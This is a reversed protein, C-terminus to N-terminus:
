QKQRHYRVWGFLLIGLIGVAGLLAQNSVMGVTEDPNGVFVLHAWYQPSHFQAYRGDRLFDIRAKQLAQAFSDGQQLHAYFKASIYATAKDEANWLSTVTNACGAYALARSLSMVGEGNIVKGSATECASLFVLRTKSLPENRLEHAYLKYDANGVPSFVIFSRSPDENNVVAHTALHIISAEPSLKIFSAKTAAQNILKVGTMTEIEGYSAPLQTYAVKKATSVSSFPAVALTKTFDIPDRANDHRLFPVAYQYVVDYKELLYANDRDEFAEFPLLRLADCPIILLSSIGTLGAEAPKILRDYLLRAHPSGGYAAGPLITQLARRLGSLAQRYASDKPAQYFRLENHTLVFTYVATTGEFYSVLATHRNLLKTQLYPINISDFGFKQRYYAPFEHLKTSLRALALESDRIEASIARTEAENHSRDAKMFLRSLNFKLNREQALLSDPIGAFSKIQNEKSNIYLTVAKSKEAWRFAAELYEKKHTRGFSQSMLTVVEQYVPFAKQVIFLRADESDFSKEIYEALKLASEYTDLTSSLYRDNHNTEYLKQLCRAKAVLSEFLQYSRFGATLASPNHYVVTDNFSYDLHIISQQYYRLATAPHQNQREADALLKYTLGITYEKQPRKGAPQKKNYITIAKRLHRFAEPLRQQQLYASGLENQLMVSNNNETGTVKMLYYLASAPDRKKLYTTGINILVEDRAIALPLLSKYLTAASDYQELHWLASAINSKYAYVRQQNLTKTRQLLQLAKSFYNISQRYNGAEFYIAGFSNYLSQSEQVAPYHLYIAEAKKLYYTSSDFSHLFYHATGCYLYPKFLLSDALKHHLCSAIAKQYFVMAERQLGYTQKLVGAKEYCDVIVPANSVTAPAIAAARLFTSIALSDTRETPTPREFLALAEKYLTRAQQEQKTSQAYPKSLLTCGAILLFTFTKKM